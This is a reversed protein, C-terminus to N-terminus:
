SNSTKMLSIGQKFFISGLIAPVLAELRNVSTGLLYTEGWILIYGAFLLCFTGLVIVGLGIYQKLTM